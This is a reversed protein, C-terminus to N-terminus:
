LTETMRPCRVRAPVHVHVVQDQHDNTLRATRGVRKEGPKRLGVLRSEVVTDFLPALRALGASATNAGGGDNFNNTLAATAFGRARLAHIAVVFDHNPRASSVMMEFFMTAASFQGLADATATSAPLGRRKTYVDYATASTADRVEDEFRPYFGDMDLEGRELQQFAGGPAHSAITVNM